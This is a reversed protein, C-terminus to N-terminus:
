KAGGPMNKVVNLLLNKEKEGEQADLPTIDGQINNLQEADKQVNQLYNTGREKEALVIKMAVASADIKEEFKAKNIIEENGPMQLNEIEKIRKNEAEVGEKHGENKAQKYVEPYDNKLKELDMTEDEKQNKPIPLENVLQTAHNQPKRGKLENRLKEIVEPPLMATDANAVIQDSKQFMVEDILNHELAQQPTLWTEADMMSLLEEYEKGSKLKYANAITQNVNKLFNSTHDMDRYDGSARVSANHIMMQSTPSMKIYDAAMAIVSAASAAIGAIIVTVKSSHSKLTTYIDSADYVSGGGSNIIVEIEEGEKAKDLAAQVKGPSTAKMDLWDYIWIDDDSVIPGKIEIKM